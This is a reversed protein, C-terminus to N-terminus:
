ILLGLSVHKPELFADLGEGGLERGQPDTVTGVINGYVAQGFASRSVLLMFMALWLLTITRRMMSLTRRTM